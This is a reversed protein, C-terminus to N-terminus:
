FIWIALWGGIQGIQLTVYAWITAGLATAPLFRRYAMGAMGIVLFVPGRLPALFHGFVVAWIGYKRARKALRKAEKRRRAVPKWNMVWDECWHGLFWALSSGAIAGAIAGGLLPLFAIDGSAALAGLGVLILTSPFFLSVVIMTEIAAMAFAMALLWQPNAVVFGMIAQALDQM